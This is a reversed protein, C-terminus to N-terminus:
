FMADNGKGCAFKKFSSIFDNGIAKDFNSACYMNQPYGAIQALETPNIGNGIGVVLINIGDARLEDAIKKPDEAGADRTQSGDTLLIM